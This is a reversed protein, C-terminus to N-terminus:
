PSPDKGQEACTILDTQAAIHGLELESEAAWQPNLEIGIYRRGLRLAAKGTRATGSFPDLILDGPRSGAMICRAALTEPFAAFHSGKSPQPPITWVSRANRTDVVDCVAASFSENQRSRRATKRDGKAHQTPHHKGPGSVWGAAWVAAKPNLGNGRSNANGTVPERIAAADYYYRPSRAFLFIQEHARTPRDKCSEPMPSPKHWIIEQRLIWGDDQLALAIRWPMGVLQKPGLPGGNRGGEHNRLSQAQTHTRDARWGTAGQHGAGPGIYCDGYNLWLTGDPRLARRVERFVDVMVAVHEQITPELGIQGPAGYDRLAWYPPSTVVCQVSAEPIQRLGERVDCNLIQFTM